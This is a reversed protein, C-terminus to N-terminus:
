ANVEAALNPENLDESQFMKYRNGIIQNEFVCEGAIVKCFDEYQQMEVKAILEVASDYLSFRQMDIGKERFWRSLRETIDMVTNM